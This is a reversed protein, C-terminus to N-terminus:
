FGGFSFDLHKSSPDNQKVEAVSTMETTTKTKTAASTPTTTAVSEPDSADNHMENNKLIEAEKEEEETTKKEGKKGMASRMSKMRNMARGAVLNERNEQKRQQSVKVIGQNTRTREIVKKTCLIEYQAKELVLVQVGHRAKEKMDENEENEPVVTVTAARTRESVKKSMMSEGFFAHEGITAMRRKGHRLSTISCNGELIVYFSNAADGEHCIIEDPNYKLLKMNDVMISINSELMHSFGPVKSLCKSSKLKARSLLRLQTNRKAQKSRKDNLENLREEHGHHENMVNEAHTEDKLDHIDINHSLNSYKTLKDQIEKLKEQEETTKEAIEKETETKPTIKSLSTASSSSPGFKALNIMAKTKQEESDNENTIGSARRVIAHRRDRLYERVFIYFGRLMFISNVGVIIITVHKVETTISGPKKHGLFYLLGM